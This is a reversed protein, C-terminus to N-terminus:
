YMTTDLLITIDPIDIIIDGHMLMSSFFNESIDKLCIIM